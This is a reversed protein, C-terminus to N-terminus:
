VEFSVLLPKNVAASKKKMLHEIDRSLPSLISSKMTFIYNYEDWLGWRSSVVVVM